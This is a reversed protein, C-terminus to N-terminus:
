RNTVDFSLLLRHQGVLRSIRNMAGAIGELRAALVKVDLRPQLGAAPEGLVQMRALLLAPGDDLAAHGEPEGADRALDPGLVALDQDAGADLVRKAVVAGLLDVELQRTRGAPRSRLKQGVARRRRALAQEGAAADGLAERRGSPPPTEQVQAAVLDDIFSGGRNAWLAIIARSPRM